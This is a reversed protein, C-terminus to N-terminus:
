VKSKEIHWFCMNTMLQNFKDTMLFWPWYIWFQILQFKNKWSFKLNRLWLEWAVILCILFDLYKLPYVNMIFLITMLNSMFLTFYFPCYSPNMFHVKLTSNIYILSSRQKPPPPLWRRTLHWFRASFHWEKNVGKWNNKQSHDKPILGIFAITLLM